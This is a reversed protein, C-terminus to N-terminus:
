QASSTAELQYLRNVPRRTRRGRMFITAARSQGDPGTILSEVRALPWRSRPGEGHVLVVEGVSPLRAPRGRPSVTWCRLAAVYERTWRRILNDCVRRRHRWARDVCDVHLGSHAVVGRISTVGFLLHAPTLLEDDSTTLPRLNLHFALEYLTVALEDFTLHCQHLTIKLSKKTIGVMREWFGGWWPAAEPIFRWTVTRPLHSLLAHFTKANDSYIFEPTGRLAFFRRLARKVDETNQSRVLELHVARSTACTFLLTWVKTGGDVYLPGFFDVGVKSFPRSPETRFAPLAGDASQYCLGKYRRCRTCTSVVRKVSRRRILYEASLLALTVRTSQHFCRQHAEDIILMTIHALEPLIPLPSENTRPLACLINGQNFQPRMKVLPSGSPLLDGKKICTMEAQYAKQQAKRIWFELASRREESTLPGSKREETPKRANHVFRKVWGTREVVQKLKSCGTIDFLNGGVTRSTVTAAVSTSKQRTEPKLEKQADASLESAEREDPDDLQDESIHPPGMWWRQSVAVASVSMGRTGLDAPNDVGKVHRWQDPNTLDLIASVRNEVFIKRPKDNRIWFLVDTSDTWLVANPTQVKLADQIFKLLRAGILAAMLEMRPITLKPDLPALRSKAMVLKSHGDNVHYVVACYAQKSADCFVHFVGDSGEGVADISRPFWVVQESSGKWWSEVEKQLRESLPEDWKPAPEETWTRQFLAKGHILWPTLVGLPDFTKSVISLLDRKTRPCSSQPVVVALRDSETNWLMGLVGSDPSSDGSLRSKHLQMNANSFVEVMREMGQEAEQRSPFTTCIDDMYTGTRIKDCLDPDSAEYSGLHTEITKLLMYPSCSLGFPVRAFRLSLDTWFFQLYKRDENKVSVQHFASKIDCQCGIAGARFNLVVAPLKLLLNEGADLYENLSRGVGDKASGDFVIRLKGNRHIGRHPLYFANTLDDDLPSSLNSAPGIGSGERLTSCREPSEPPKPKGGQVTSGGEADAHPLNSPESEGGRRGQAEEPSWTQEGGHPRGESASPFLGTNSAPAYEIVSNTMMETFQVDYLEATKEDLRNTMRSTRLKTAKLNSIPRNDSKWALGMEYRGEAENWTPEPLEKGEAKIEKEAAIGITDLDWMREVSHCHYSHRCPQDSTNCQRGHLVYGFVTEIARLGEEIEIQHWLIVEYLLDIGILIDIPGDRFDDAMKEPLLPSKPLETNAPLASCLRDTSYLEVQMPDGDFRSQLSMQVRNYPRPEELKEQFGVCAFTDIGTVPLGLEEVLSTRVYSTDSGGDLLVRVLKGGEPGTAKVLATQYFHHHHQTMANYRYRQNQAAPEAYKRSQNVAGEPQSGTAASPLFPAAHPSIGLANPRTPQDREGNHLSSHHRENCLSCRRSQCNKARHPGLCQFCLGAKKVVEWRAKVGMERYRDCRSLGHQGHGCAQCNWRSRQQTPVRQTSLTSTAPKALPTIPGEACNTKAKMCPVQTVEERIKMEEQLYSMFCAFESDSGAKDGRSRAWQLRWVDPVKGKLVPLLLEGYTASSTGLAELARVNATLDDVLRRMSKLDDANTVAPLRLLNAMLTEKRVDDKGFRDKLIDVAIQYNDETTALGQISRAAEGTLHGRLYVFKEVASYITNQHVAATYLEWFEPWALLDGGYKPLHLDLKFKKHQMKTSHNPTATKKELRELLRKSKFLWEELESAHSSDDHVEFRELEEGLQELAALQKENLHILYALDDPDADTAQYQVKLRNLSKTAKARERTRNQKLAEIKGTESM